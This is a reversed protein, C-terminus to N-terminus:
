GEDLGREVYRGLVAAHNAEEEEMADDQDDGEGDEGGAGDEDADGAGEEEGRATDAERLM